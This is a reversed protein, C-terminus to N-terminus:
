PLTLNKDAMRDVLAHTIADWTGQEENIDRPGMFAEVSGEAAVWGGAEPEEPSGDSTGAQPKRRRIRQTMKLTAM